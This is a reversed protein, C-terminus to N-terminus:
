QMSTGNQGGKILMNRRQYKYDEVMEQLTDELLTDPVWGITEELRATDAARRPYGEPKIVDFRIPKKIGSVDLIMRALDGMSVEESHGINIPVAEVANYHYSEVLLRIAKAIDKADVLSRTQNGSGWVVLEENEHAKRILAPTVHSSDWDYYDGVGIANFFRVITTPVDYERCLLGAQEEGLLKALGYGRNTPEPHWNAAEEPTPVPADHPYVCATSVYLFRHVKSAQDRIIDTMMTNVLVNDQLMQLHHRRNHAINSVRAALHVIIPYKSLDDYWLELPSHIFTVNPNVNRGRSLDDVVTVQYGSRLFESVVHHGIFGAGGTVLVNTM